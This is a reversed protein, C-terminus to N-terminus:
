RRVFWVALATTAVVCATLGVTELPVLWSTIPSIMVATAGLVAVVWLGV